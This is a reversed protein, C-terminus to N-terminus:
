GAGTEFIPIIINRRNRYSKTCIDRQYHRSSKARCIKNRIAGTQHFINAISLRDTIKSVPIQLQGASIVRCQIKGGAAHSIIESQRGARQCQSSVQRDPTIPTIGASKSSSCSCYGEVTGSSGGIIM